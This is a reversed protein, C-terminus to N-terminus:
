ALEVAVVHKGFRYGDHQALVQSAYQQPANLLDEWTNSIVGV